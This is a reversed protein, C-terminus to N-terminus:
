SFNVLYNLENIISNYAKKVIKNNSLLKNKLPKMPMLSYVNKGNNIKHAVILVKNISKLNIFELNIGNFKTKAMNIGGKIRFRFV